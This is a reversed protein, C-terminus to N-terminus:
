PSHCLFDSPTWLWGVSQAITAPHWRQGIYSVRNRMTLM